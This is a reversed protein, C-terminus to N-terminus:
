AELMELEDALDWITSVAEDGILIANEEAWARSELAYRVESQAVIGTDMGEDVSKQIRAIRANAEKIETM